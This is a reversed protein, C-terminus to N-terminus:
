GRIKTQWIENPIALGNFIIKNEGFSRNQVIIERSKKMRENPLPFSAKRKLDNVTIEEAALIAQPFELLCVALVATLSINRFSM